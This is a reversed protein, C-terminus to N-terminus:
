PQCPTRRKAISRKKKNASRSTGLTGGPDDSADPALRSVRRRQKSGISAAPLGLPSGSAATTEVGAMTTTPVTPTTAVPAAASSNTATVRSTTTLRVESGALAAFVDKCNGRASNGHFSTIGGLITDEGSVTYLAGGDTASVGDVFSADGVIKLYGRNFLHGGGTETETEPPSSPLAAEVTQSSGTETTVAAAATNGRFAASTEFTSVGANYVSGGSGAAWNRLMTSRRTFITTSGEETFVAGGDGGVRTSAGGSARNGNFFSRRFFKAWGRNCLAGGRLASNEEFSALESFEVRGTGGVSVGGGCSHAEQGRSGQGPARNGVFHAANEFTVEGDTHFAGGSYGNQVSNGEFHIPVLFVAAGGEEVKLAGGNSDQPAAGELALAGTGEGPGAYGMDDSSIDGAVGVSLMAGSKVVVRVNRLTLGSVPPDRYGEDEGEGGGLGESTSGPSVHIALEIGGGVTLTVLKECVIAGVDFSLHLDETIPSPLAELEACDSILVTGAARRRPRTCQPPQAGTSIALALVCAWRSAYRCM